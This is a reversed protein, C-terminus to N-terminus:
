PPCHSGRKADSKWYFPAILEFWRILMHEQSLHGLKLEGDVQHLTQILQNLKFPGLRKAWQLRRMQRKRQWAQSSQERSGLGELEERMNQFQSRIVAAFLPASGVQVSLQRISQWTGPLDFRELDALLPWVQEQPPASIEKEVLAEDVLGNPGVLDILRHLEQTALQRLGGCRKVLASAANLSLEARGRQAISALARQWRESTEWPKERSLDLRWASQLAAPWQGTKLPEPAILAVAGIAPNEPLNQVLRRLMQAFRPSSTQAEEVILCRNQAFLTPTELEGLLSEARTGECFDTHAKGRLEKLQLRFYRREDGSKVYLAFLGRNDPNQWDRLFREETSM